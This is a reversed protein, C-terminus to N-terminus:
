FLYFLKLRLKNTDKSFILGTFKFFPKFAQIYNDFHWGFEESPLTGAGYYIYDWKDKLSTMIGWALVAFISLVYLTLMIFLFLSFPTFKNKKLRSTRTM